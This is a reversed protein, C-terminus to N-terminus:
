TPARARALLVQRKDAPLARLMGRTVVVSGPTGPRGPLAYADPAPHTQRM